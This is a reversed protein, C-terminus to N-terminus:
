MLEDDSKCLFWHVQFCLLSCKGEGGFPDMEGRNDLSISLSISGLRVKERSRSGIAISQRMDCAEPFEVVSLCSPSSRCLQCNQFKQVIHHVVYMSLSLWSLNPSCRKRNINQLQGQLDAHMAPLSDLICSMLWPSSLKRRLFALSILYSDTSDITFHSEYHSVKLTHIVEKWSLFQKNTCYYSLLWKDM